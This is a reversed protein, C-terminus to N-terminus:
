GEVQMGKRSVRLPFIFSDMEDKDARFMPLKSIKMGPNHRSSDDGPVSNNPRPNDSKKQQLALKQEEIAIEREKLQLERNKEREHMEREEKERQRALAREERQFCDEVYQRLASGELEFEKGQKMFIQFKEDQDAMM